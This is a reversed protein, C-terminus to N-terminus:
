IKKEVLSFDHSLDEQKILSLFRNPLQDIESFEFRSVFHNINFFDLTDVISLVSPYDPHSKFQFEFENKDFSIEEKEFYLFLNKLISTM